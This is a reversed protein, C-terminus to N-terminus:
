QAGEIFIYEFATSRKIKDDETYTTRVGLMYHGGRDPNVDEIKIKFRLTKGSLGQLHRIEQFHKREAIIGETPLIEIQIDSLKNDRTNEVGIEVTFYKDKQIKEPVSIHVSLPNIGKEHKLNSFASAGAIAWELAPYPGIRGWFARALDHWFMGKAPSDGYISRAGTVLRQYFKEPGPPDLTSQHVVWDIQNGVVLNVQDKKVYQNWEKMLEEFQWDDAEYLMIADIDAGADNMMVPDQGHQHGKQWSLTFTWLPQKMDCSSKIEKVIGAVYHARWWNWQDILEFDERQRVKKALWKMREIKSYRPWDIPLEPDMEQAFEDVMEFGGFANRIYDLGVYDVGPIKSVLLIFDIIDQRRAKDGLSITRDTPSCEDSEEDYNFAYEYKDSRFEKKGFTLYASTWVGFKIGREHALAAFEELMAVNGKNWPFDEDVKQKWGATQGGLYWITDAGIYEAWEIINQWSAEKSNEQSPIKIGRLEASSELTLIYLDQPIKPPTRRIIEFSSPEFSIGSVSTTDLHITYKSTPANWPIPWKGQWMKLSPDYILSFEIRKGITQVPKGDRKVHATLSQPLDGRRSSGDSRAATIDVLEFHLYKEKSAKIEIQKADATSISFFLTYLFIWVVIRKTM